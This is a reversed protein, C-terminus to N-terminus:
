YSLNPHCQRKVNVTSMLYSRFEPSKLQQVTKKFISAMKSPNSPPKQNPVFFLYLSPRHRSFSLSLILYLQIPLHQTSWLEDHSRGYCLWKLLLFLHDIFATSFTLRHPLPPYPKSNAGISLVALNDWGSILCRLVVGVVSLQVAKRKNKHFPLSKESNVGCILIFM